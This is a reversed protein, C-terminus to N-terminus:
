SGRKTHLNYPLSFTRTYRELVSSPNLQLYSVADTPTGLALCISLSFPHRSTRSIVIPGHMYMPPPLPQTKRRPCAVCPFVAHAKLKKRASPHMSCTFLKQSSLGPSPVRSSPGLINYGGGEKTRYSLHKERWSQPETRDFPTHYRKPMTPSVIKGRHCLLRVRM